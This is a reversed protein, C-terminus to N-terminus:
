GIECAVQRPSSVGPDSPGVSFTRARSLHAPSTARRPCWVRQLGAVGAIVPSITGAGEFTYFREGDREQPNFVLRGQLLAQMALRAPGTAQRLMGQWDTLAGRMVDLVHGLDGVDGHRARTHEVKALAARVHGRRREREQLLAVLAPLDGGQAIAQALRGAEPDLRALENRMATVQADAEDGDQLAALAKYLSTELVAVNLVDHEVAALV